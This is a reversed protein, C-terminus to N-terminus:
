DVYYSSVIESVVGSPDYVVARVEYNSDSPSRTYRANRRGDRATSAELPQGVAALVEDESMGRALTAFRAEDFDPAYETDDLLLHLAAEAADDGHRAAVIGAALACSLALGLAVRRQTTLDGRAVVRTLLRRATAEVLAHTISAALLAMLGEVVLLPFGAVWRNYTDEGLADYLRQPGVQGVLATHLLLAGIALTVALLVCRALLVGVSPSKQRSWSASSPM